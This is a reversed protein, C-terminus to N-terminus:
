IITKIISYNFTNDINTRLSLDATLIKPSKHPIVTTKLESKWDTNYTIVGRSVNSVDNENPLKYTLVYDVSLNSAPAYKTRVYISDGECRVYVDNLPLQDRVITECVYDDWNFAVGQLEDIYRTWLYEFSAATNEYSYSKGAQKYKDLLEFITKEKNSDTISAKVIFDVPRGAGEIIAVNIGLSDKIIKQLMITQPITGLKMQLQKKWVNFDSWLTVIPRIMAACLAKIRQERLAFPLMEVIWKGWYINM